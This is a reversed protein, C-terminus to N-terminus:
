AEGRGRCSLALPLWDCPKGMMPYTEVSFRIAEPLQELVAGIAILIRGAPRLRYSLIATKRRQPSLFRSPAGARELTEDSPNLLRM